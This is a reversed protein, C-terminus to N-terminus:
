SAACVGDLVASLQRSQEARNYSSVIDQKPLYTVKGDCQWTTHLESVIAAVDAPTRAIVGTNSSTILRDATSNDGPVALIPRAAAFYEYIKGTAIGTVGTSDTLHLLVSAQMQARIAQERTVHGDNCLIDEVGYKSALQLMLEASRGMYRFRISERLSPAQQFLLRLGDLFVDPVRRPNYLSGTYCVEFRSSDSAPAQVYESPDFGNPILHPRSKLTLDKMESECLEDSVSLVAAASRIAPSLRRIHHSKRPLMEMARDRLDAIWPLNFQTALREGLVLTDAPPATAM